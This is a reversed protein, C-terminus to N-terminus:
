NAQMLLSMYTKAMKMLNMFYLRIRSARNQQLSIFRSYCLMLKNEVEFLERMKMRAAEALVSGSRLELITLQDSSFIPVLYM